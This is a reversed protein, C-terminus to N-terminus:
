PRVLSSKREKMLSFSCASVPYARMSASSARAALNRPAPASLCDTRFSTSAATALSPSSTFAFPSSYTLNML